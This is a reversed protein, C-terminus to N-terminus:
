PRQSDRRPGNGDVSWAADEKGSQRSIRLRALRRVVEARAQGGPSPSGRGSVERHFPIVGSMNQGSPEESFIGRCVVECTFHAM